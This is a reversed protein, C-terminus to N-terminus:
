FVAQIAMYINDTIDLINAAEFKGIVGLEVLVVCAGFPNKMIKQQLANIAIKMPESGMAFFTFILLFQSIFISALDRGYDCTLIFKPLTAIIVFIPFIWFIRKKTENVFRKWISFLIYELPLLLIITLIMKVINKKLPALVYPEIFDLVNTYYELKVMSTMYEEPCDTRSTLISLTDELSLGDIKGMFQFYLFAICGCIVTIALVAKGKSHKLVYYLLMLLICPFYAFVFGQHIMMEVICIIPIAWLLKQKILIIGCTMAGAIMFLDLRGYNGWYFLFAVSAPMVLFIFILFLIGKETERTCYKKVISLFCVTLICLIVQNLGIILWIKATSIYPFPIAWFSGILGRSIFGLDYRLIYPTICFSHLEEPMPLYYLMYLILIMFWAIEYGKNHLLKLMSKSLRKNIKNIM